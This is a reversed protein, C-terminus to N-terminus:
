KYIKCYEGAKENGNMEHGYDIEDWESGNREEGVETYCDGMVVLTKGSPFERIIEEVRESLCKVWGKRGM